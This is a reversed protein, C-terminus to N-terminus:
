NRPTTRLFEIFGPDTYAAPPLEDTLLEVDVDALEDARYQDQVADICVLGIVLAAFPLFSLWKGWGAHADFGTLSLAASHSPRNIVHAAHVQMQAVARERAVRLRQAVDHDLDQAAADLRAALRRAFHDARAQSDPANAFIKQAKM